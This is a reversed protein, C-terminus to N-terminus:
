RRQALGRRSQAAHRKLNALHHAKFPNERPVPALLGPAPLDATLRLTQDQAQQAAFDLVDLEALTLVEKIQRILSPTCGAGGGVVLIRMRQEEAM